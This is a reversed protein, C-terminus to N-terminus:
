SAWCCSGSVAGGVVGAFASSPIQPRCRRGCLSHVHGVGLVLCPFLVLFLQCSLDRWLSARCSCLSGACGTSFEKVNHLTTLYQLITHFYHLFVCYFTKLFFFFFFFNRLIEDFNSINRRFKTFLYRTGTGTGFCLSLQLM